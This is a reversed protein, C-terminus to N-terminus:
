TDTSLNDFTLEPGATLEAARAQSTADDQGAWRWALALRVGYACLADLSFPDTGALEAARAMRGADLIREGKLPDDEDMTKTALRRAVSDATLAGSRYPRPDVNWRDARRLALAAAVDAQFAAYERCFRTTCQAVDGEVARTVDALSEADMVEACAALFDETSLAPSATLSPEPLAAMLAYLLPM